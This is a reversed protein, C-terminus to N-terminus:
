LFKYHGEIEYCTLKEGHEKREWIRKVTDGPQIPTRVLATTANSGFGLASHLSHVALPIFDVSRQVWITGKGGVQVEHYDPFRIEERWQDPGNWMLEYSGEIIKGGDDPIQLVAKMEFSPLEFLNTKAVVQEVRHIAQQQKSTDSASLLNSVLIGVLLVLFTRKV